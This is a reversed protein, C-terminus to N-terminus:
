GVTFSTLIIAIYHLAEENHLVRRQVPADYNEIITDGIVNHTRRRIENGLQIGMQLRLDLTFRFLM